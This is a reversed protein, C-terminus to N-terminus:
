ELFWCTLSGLKMKSQKSSSSGTYSPKIQLSSLGSSSIHVALSPITLVDHPIIESRGESDNATKIKSNNNQRQKQLFPDVILIQFSVHDFFEFQYTCLSLLSQKVAEHLATKTKVCLSVFDWFSACLNTLRSESDKM